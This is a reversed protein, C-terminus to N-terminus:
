DKFTQICRLLTLTLYQKLDEDFIGNLMSNKLIAPKYMETIKLIASEDGSKAHALLKSFDEM